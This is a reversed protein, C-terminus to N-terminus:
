GVRVEMYGYEYKASKTTLVTENLEVCVSGDAQILIDEVIRWHGLVEIRDGVQLDKAVKTKM